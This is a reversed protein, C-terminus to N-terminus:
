ARAGAIREIRSLPNLWRGCGLIAQERKGHIRVPMVRDAPLMAPKVINTLAPRQKVSVPPMVVPAYHARGDLPSRDVVVLAGPRYQRVQAARSLYQEAARREPSKMPHLFKERRAM